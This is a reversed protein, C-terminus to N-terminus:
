KANTKDKEKVKKDIKSIKNMLTRNTSLDTKIHWELRKECNELRVLIDSIYQIFVILTGIQVACMVCLIIKFIDMM